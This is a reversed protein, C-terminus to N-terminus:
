EFDIIKEPSGADQFALCELGRDACSFGSAEGHFGPLLYSFQGDQRPRYESSL